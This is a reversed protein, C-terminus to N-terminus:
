DLISGLAKEAFSNSCICPKLQSTVTLIGSKQKKEVVFWQVSNKIKFSKIKFSKCQQDNSLIWISWKTHLTVAEVEERQM